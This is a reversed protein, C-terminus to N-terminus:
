LAVCAHVTVSCISVGEHPARVNMLGSFVTGDLSTAQRTINLNHWDTAIAPSRSDPTPRRRTSVTPSDDAPAAPTLIQQAPAVVAAAPRPPTPAAVRPGPYPGAYVQFQVPSADEAARARHRDRRMAERMDERAKERALRGFEPM